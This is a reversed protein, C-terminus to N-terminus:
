RPAFVMGVYDVERNRKTLVRVYSWSAFAERANAESGFAFKHVSLDLEQVWRNTHPHFLYFFLPFRPILSGFACTHMTELLLAVSVLFSGIFLARVVGFVDGRCWFLLAIM